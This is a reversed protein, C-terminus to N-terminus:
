QLQEILAEESDAAIDEEIEKTNLHYYTLAAYAQGLSIPLEVIIDEPAIGQKYMIAIARVTIGTGAIIPRGSHLEPDQIILGDLMKATNM